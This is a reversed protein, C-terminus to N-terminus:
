LLDAMNAEKGRNREIRGRFGSFLLTAFPLNLCPDEKMYQKKKKREKKRGNM